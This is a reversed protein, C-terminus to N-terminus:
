ENSQIEQLGYRAILKVLSDKTLKTDTVRTIVNYEKNDITYVEREEIDNEKM